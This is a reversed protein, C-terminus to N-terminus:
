LYAEAYDPHTATVGYSAARLSMTVEGNGATTSKVVRSDDAGHPVAAVVAGSLPLGTPAVVRVRIASTPQGSSPPTQAFALQGVTAWSGLFVIAVAKANTPVIPKRLDRGDAITREGKATDGHMDNFRRRLKDGSPPNRILTSRM